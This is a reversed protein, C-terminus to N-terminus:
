FNLPLVCPQCSRCFSRIRTALARGSRRHTIIIQSVKMSSSSCRIWGLFVKRTHASNKGRGYSSFVVRAVDQQGSSTLDLLAKARSVAASAMGLRVKASHSSGCSYNKLRPPRPEGEGNQDGDMGPDVSAPRAGRGVIGHFLARMM